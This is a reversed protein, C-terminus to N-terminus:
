MGYFVMKVDRNWGTEWGLPKSDAEVYVILSTCGSFAKSKITTIHTPLYIEKMSTCCGFANDGFYSISTPIIIESLSSCCWLTGDEIRTMGSSFTISKLNVCYEFANEGIKTVSNPIVMTEISGCSSFANKGIEKLNNGTLIINANSAFFAFDGIYEVTSPIVLDGTLAYTSIFAAKGITKLGEELEVKELLM